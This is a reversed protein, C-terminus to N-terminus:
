LKGVILKSVVQGGQETTITVLYIGSEFGTLQIIEGECLNNASHRIHGNIDYINLQKANGNVKVYTLAPNPYILSANEFFKPESVSTIGEMAFWQRSGDPAVAIFYINNNTRIFNDPDGGIRGVVFEKVLTLENSTINYKWLETGRDQTFLSLLCTYHDLWEHNSGELYYQSSPFIKKDESVKTMTNYLVFTMEADARNQYQLIVTDGHIFAQILMDNRGSPTIDFPVEDFKWIWTHNKGGIETEVVITEDVEKWFFSKYYLTNEFPLYNVNIKGQKESHFIVENVGPFPFTHVIGDLGKATINYYWPREGVETLDKFEGEASLKRVKSGGGSSGPLLFFGGEMDPLVNYFKNSQGDILLMQNKEIDWLYPERQNEFYGYFLVNNKSIAEITIDLKNGFYKVDFLKEVRADFYYSKYFGPGIIVPGVASVNNDLNFGGGLSKSQIELTTPNIKIFDILQNEKQILAYLFGNYFVFPSCQLAEILKTTGESNTVYVSGNSFYFLKDELLYEKSIYNLGLNKSNTFSVIKQPPSGKSKLVWLDSKGKFSRTCIFLSGLTPHKEFIISLVDDTQGYFKKNMVAFNDSNVEHLTAIFGYLEVDDEGRIYVRDGFDRQDNAFNIDNNFDMYKWEKAAQDYIANHSISYWSGFNSYCVMENEGMYLPFYTGPKEMYSKSLTDCGNSNLVYNEFAFGRNINFYILSDTWYLNKCDQPLLCPLERVGHKADIYFQSGKGDQIWVFYNETDWLNNIQYGQQALTVATIIEGTILDESVFGESRLKYQKYGIRTGNEISRETLQHSRYDYIGYYTIGDRIYQLLWNDGEPIKEVFVIVSSSGFFQYTDILEGTKLSTAYVAQSYVEFLTDGSLLLNPQNDYNKNSYVRRQDLPQHSWQQIPELGSESVVSVITKAKNVEVLLLRENDIIFKKDLDDTQVVNQVDSIQVQGFCGIVTLFLFGLTNFYKKM